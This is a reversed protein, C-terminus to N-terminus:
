AGAAVTNTTAFGTSTGVQWAQHRLPSSRLFTNPCAPTSSVARIFHKIASCVPKEAQSIEASTRPPCPSLLTGSMRQTSVETESGTWHASRSLHPACVGPRHRSEPSSSAPCRRHHRTDCDRLHHLSDAVSSVVDQRRTLVPSCADGHSHGTYPPRPHNLQRQIRLFLHHEVVRRILHCAINSLHISQSALRDLLGTGSHHRPHAM